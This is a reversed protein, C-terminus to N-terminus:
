HQPRQSLYLAINLNHSTGPRGPYRLQGGDYYGLILAGIAKPDVTSPAYGGGVFEQRDSCKTKIWDGGRGSRYPANRRKSIIGELALRCAHSLLESGPEEFHESYRIPADGPLDALLEQLAQKREILPAGTLDHGDLHLLDFAMYVVRESRGESLDQQLQSFSSVGRETESIVEGEVVAWGA